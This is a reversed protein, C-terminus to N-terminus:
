YCVRSIKNVTINAKFINKYDVIQKVSETLMLDVFSEALHKYWQAVAAVMYVYVFCFKM